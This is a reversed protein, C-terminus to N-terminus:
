LRPKDAQGGNSKSEEALRQMEQRVKPPLLKEEHEARRTVEDLQLARQAAHRAEEGHGSKELTRALNAQVPASHPYLSAALEHAQVAATLHTPDATTAYIEALFNGSRTWATSSRPALRVLDRQAELFSKLAAASHDRRWRQFYYTMLHEVATHSYPDTRVADLLLSEETAENALAAQRLVTESKLVPDYATLYFAVTLLAFAGCAAAASVQGFKHFREKPRGVYCTLATLLWFTGAVGPYGIGGAALLHVLLVVIAVASLFIPLAGARIWGRLLWVTVVLGVLSCVSSAASLPFGVLPRVIAAVAVGVIAGCVAYTIAWSDDGVEVGHPYTDRLDRNGAKTTNDAHTAHDATGSTATETGGRRFVRWACLGLVAALALLAPTGATAWIEFLFNHPDNIEESAQPLKYTLYADQFQGPGCGFWPSEGIMKWTAQWYQGRYGLSKGAETVIPLDLGGVSIGVTALVVVSAVVLAITLTLKRKAVHGARWAAFLLLLVGVAVAVYSSRSKTLLLCGAIPLAILLACSVAKSRSIVVPRPTPPGNRTDDAADARLSLLCVGVALVLWPALFGALSNALAFTAFPESSYVRDEFHRRAISDPPYWQGITAVSLRPDDKVQEYIERDRPLGVFYQYYGFLSTGLAIGIMVVLVARVEIASRVLQRVLFFAFGLATWEWLMNIAPRPSGNKVASIAGIAHWVVLAAVATDIWGWRLTLSRKRFQGGAWACVLLLWLMVLVVGDGGDAVGESPVLPQACFLAIAAALLALRWRLARDDVTAGSGATQRRKLKKKV